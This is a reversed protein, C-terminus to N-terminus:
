SERSKIFELFLTHLGNNPGPYEVTLQIYKAGAYPIDEQIDWIIKGNGETLDFPGHPGDTLWESSYDMAMMLEIYSSAIKSYHLRQRSTSVSRMGNVQMMSVGLIGVSLLVIIIMVEILTFGKYGM